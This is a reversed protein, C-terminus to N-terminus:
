AALVEGTEVEMVVAAGNLPQGLEREWKAVAGPGDEEPDPPSGHWPQKTMLGPWDPSPNPTLLAQIRAQLQVDITLRVDKGPQPELREEYGTDLHRLVVGLTGRL